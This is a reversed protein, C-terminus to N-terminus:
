LLHLINQFVYEIHLQSKIFFGAILPYIYYPFGKADQKRFVFALTIGVLFGFLHGEWSIHPSGPFIGLITGGYFFFVILSVLLSKWDRRFFVNFILFGILSFILGSAGIHSAERGFLWLLIGGFLISLVITKKALKPYYFMLATLLVLLPISNSILHQFNAHIFPAFLIGMFNVVSIHRPVIGYQNLSLGLIQNIIMVLWLVALCYISFSLSGKINKM